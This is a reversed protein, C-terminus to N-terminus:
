KILTTRRMVYSRPGALLIARATLVRLCHSTLSLYYVTDSHSLIRHTCIRPSSYSVADKWAQNTCGILGDQKQKEKRGAGPFRDQHHRRFAEVRVVRVVHLLYPEGQQPPHRAIQLDQM